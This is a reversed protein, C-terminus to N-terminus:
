LTLINRKKQKSRELPKLTHTGTRSILFIYEDDFLAGGKKQESKSQLFYHIYAPDHRQVGTVISNQRPVGFRQVYSDKEHDANLFAITKKRNAPLSDEDYNKHSIIFRPM